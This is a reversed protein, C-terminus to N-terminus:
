SSRSRFTLEGEGLQTVDFPVASSMLSVLAKLGWESLGENSHPTLLVAWFVFAGYDLFITCERTDIEQLVYERLVSRWPHGALPSPLIVPNQGLHTERQIEILEEVSCGCGINCYIFCHHHLAYEGALGWPYVFALGFPNESLREPGESYNARCDIVWGPPAMIFVGGPVKFPFAGLAHYPQMERPNIVFLDVDRGENRARNVAAETYGVSTVLGGKSVGVDSMFGLFSEVDKVDVKKKYRKCDVLIRVSLPGLNAVVLTDVQRKAGSKKSVL